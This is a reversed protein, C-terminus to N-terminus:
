STFLVGCAVKASILARPFGDLSFTDEVKHGLKSFSVLKFSDHTTLLNIIKEDLSPGLSWAYQGAILPLNVRNEGARLFPKHEESLAFGSIISFELSYQTKPSLMFNIQNSSRCLKPLGFKPTINTLTPTSAVWCESEKVNLFLSWDNFSQVNDFLETKDDPVDPCDAFVQSSLLSLFLVVGLWM